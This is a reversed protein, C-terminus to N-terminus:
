QFMAISITSKASIKRDWVSFQSLHVILTQNISLVRNQELNTAIVSNCELAFCVSAVCVCVCVFPFVYHILACLMENKSIFLCIIIMVFSQKASLYNGNSSQWYEMQTSRLAEICESETYIYINQRYKNTKILM